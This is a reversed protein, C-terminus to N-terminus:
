EYADNSILAFWSRQVGQLSCDLQMYRDVPYYWKRFLLNVRDEPPLHCNWPVESFLWSKSLSWSAMENTMPHVYKLLAPFNRMHNSECPKSIKNLCPSQGPGQLLWLLTPTELCFLLLLLLLWLLLVLLRWDKKNLPPPFALTSFKRLGLVGVAIFVSLLSGPCAHSHLYTLHLKPPGRGKRHRKKRNWTGM